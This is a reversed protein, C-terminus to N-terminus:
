VMAIEAISVMKMTYAINRNMEMITNMVIRGLRVPTKIMLHLTIAQNQNSGKMVM